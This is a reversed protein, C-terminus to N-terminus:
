FASLVLEFPEGDSGYGRGPITKVTLITPLSLTPTPRPGSRVSHVHMNGKEDGQQASRRGGLSHLDRGREGRLSEYERKNGGQPKPGVM